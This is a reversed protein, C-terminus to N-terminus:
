DGPNGSTTVYRSHYDSDVRAGIPRGRFIIFRGLVFEGSQVGSIWSMWIYLALAVLALGALVGVAILVDAALRKHAGFLLRM